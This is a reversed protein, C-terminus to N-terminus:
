AIVGATARSVSHEKHVAEPRQGFDQALIREQPKESATKPIEPVVQIFTPVFNPELARRCCRFLAQVDLARDTPVVAAVVDKEGPAGSAAPVGYVFVDRVLGSEALAKEIYAPSIFDGNRRLGGGQRYEFFLWGAADERVVDGMHLWGGESKRVSAEPNGVYEVQYDSGDAPRLWLEGPIGRAVNHGAEDVIKHIFHPAIRGISGVPGQGLPKIALGGEASGYFELVEVGFRREFQEWIAAPMGASVVFRVPNDADDARAPEAYIATTMGGLLTLTTCGFKRTIAWLRSRTFRRSFVVRLGGVLAPALTVQLANAHTLSLGSYLLDDSCYGFGELAAVATDCFRRHTLVIGKPDGTTGSTHMIQMAEHGNGAPVPLDVGPVRLVAFDLIRPDWLARGPGEDTAIAAVWQIASSKGVVGEVNRLAYDAAILATAGSNSLMFALKDDKTRPDIPVLVAQLLAAAIMLEVFEAHNAMMLAVVSCAGVDHKRLGRALAQANRWLQGYTRTVDPAQTGGEFILCLRDPETKAFSCVMAAINDHTLTHMTM